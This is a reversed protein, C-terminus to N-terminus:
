GRKVKRIEKVVCQALARTIQEAILHEPARYLAPLSIAYGSVEGAARMTFHVRHYEKISTAEVRVIATEIVEDGFPTFVNYDRGRREAEEALEHPPLGLYNVGLAEAVTRLADANESGRRRLYATYEDYREVWYDVQRKAQEIEARMRRKKQRGFRNGM